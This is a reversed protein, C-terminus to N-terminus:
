ARAKVRTAGVRRILARLQTVGPDEAARRHWIQQVRLRPLEIPPALIRLGLPGAYARALSSGLAAICDSNAVAFPVSSFHPVTLAITRSRGARALARDVRDDPEGFLAVEVHPLSAYRDLTLKTRLKPHDRRAVCVISDEYIPEGECGSPLYPPIGILLDVEGTQLGQNSLEREITVVRLRALPMERALEHFLSPVLAVGIADTSAITFTRPREVQSESSALLRETDMLLARLAPALATARPTPVFGYATRVVLEDDFLVRLRRLANSVASQTVHLRTAAKTASRDQLVADLVVLLNLDISGLNVSSM